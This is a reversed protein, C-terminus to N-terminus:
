VFVGDPGAASAGLGYLDGPGRRSSGAHHAQNINAGYASCAARAAGGRQSVTVNVTTGSHNGTVGAANAVSVSTARPFLTTCTDSVTFEAATVVTGSASNTIRLRNNNVYLTLEGSPGAAPYSYDAAPLPEPPRLM